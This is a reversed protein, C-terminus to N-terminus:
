QSENNQKHIDRGDVASLLFDAVQDEHISYIHMIRIHLLEMLHDGRLRLTVAQLAMDAILKMVSM